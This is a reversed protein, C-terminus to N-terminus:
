YQDRPKSVLNESRPSCSRPYRGGRHETRKGSPDVKVFVATVVALACRLLDPAEEGVLGRQASLAADAGKKAMYRHAFLTVLSYLGLVAGSRPGVPIAKESWQRQTEFGLWQRAERFPPKWRGWGRVLWCIHGRGSRRPSRNCVVACPKRRSSKEQPDRILVWRLPLPPM